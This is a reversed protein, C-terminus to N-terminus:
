FPKEDPPIINLVGWRDVDFIKTMSENHAFEIEVIGGNRYKAIILSGKGKNESTQNYYEDTAISNLPVRITRPEKGKTKAAIYEIAGNIINSKTL